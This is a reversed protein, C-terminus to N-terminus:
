KNSIISGSITYTEQIYIKIEVNLYFYCLKLIPKTEQNYREDQLLITTSTSKSPLIQTKMLEAGQLKTIEEHFIIESSADNGLM